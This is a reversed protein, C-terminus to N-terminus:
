VLIDTKFFLVLQYRWQVTLLHVSTLPHILLLQSDSEEVQQSVKDFMTVKVEMEAM